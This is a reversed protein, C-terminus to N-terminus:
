TGSVRLKVTVSVLVEGSRSSVVRHWQFTVTEGNMVKPPCPALRSADASCSELDISAPGINDRDAVWGPDGYVSRETVSLETFKDDWWM